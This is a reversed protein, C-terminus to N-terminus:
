KNYDSKFKECTYFFVIASLIFLASFGIENNIAIYAISFPTTTILMVLLFNIFDKM